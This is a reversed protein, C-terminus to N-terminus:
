LAEVVQNNHMFGWYQKQNIYTLLNLRCKIQNVDSFFQLYSAFPKKLEEIKYSIIESCFYHYKGYKPVTIIASSFKLPNIPELKFGYEWIIDESESVKRYCKVINGFPDIFNTNLLPDDTLTPDVPIIRDLTNNLITLYFDLTAANKFHKKLIEKKKGNGFKTAFNGITRKDRKGIPTETHPVFKEYIAYISEKSPLYSNIGFTDVVTRQEEVMGTGKILIKCSAPSDEVINFQVTEVNSIYRNTEYYGRQEASLDISFIMNKNFFFNSSGMDNETIYGEYILNTPASYSQRGPDMQKMEGKRLRIKINMMILKIYIERTFLSNMNLVTQLNEQLELLSGRKEPLFCIMKRLSEVLDKDLKMNVMKKLVDKVKSEYNKKAYLKEVFEKKPAKTKKPIDMLTKGTLLFSVTIALGYNDFNKMKQWMEKDYVSVSEINFGDKHDKINGALSEYGVGVYYMEGSDKGDIEVIEPPYFFCDMGINETKNMQLQYWNDLNGFDKLFWPILIKVMFNNGIFISMPSLSLVPIGVNHCSQVAYSLYYVMYLKEFNDLTTKKNELEKLFDQLNTGIEEAIFNIVISSAEGSNKEDASAPSFSKPAMNQYSSIPSDRGMM